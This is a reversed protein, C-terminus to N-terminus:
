ILSPRAGLKADVLKANRYYKEKLVKAVLSTPDIYLRWCKRDLLAQNFSEFNRFGLGGVSKPLGM